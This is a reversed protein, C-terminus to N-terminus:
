DVTRNDYQEELKYKFIIYNRFREKEEETVTFASPRINFTGFYNSLHFKFARMSLGPVLKEFVLKLEAKSIEGM